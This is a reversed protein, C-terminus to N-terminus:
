APPEFSVEQAVISAYRGTAGPPKQEPIIRQVQTSRVGRRRHRPRTRAMKSRMWSGSASVVRWRRSARAQEGQSLRGGSEYGLEGQAGDGSRSMRHSLAGIRAVPGGRASLSFGVSILGEFLEVPKGQRGMIGAQMEADVDRLEDSIASDLSWSWLTVLRGVLAYRSEGLLRALRPTKRHTVVGQGVQIYGM